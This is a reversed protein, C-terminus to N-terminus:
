REDGLGVAVVAALMLGVGHLVLPVWELFGWIM